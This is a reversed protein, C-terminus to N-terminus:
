SEKFSTNLMYAMLDGAWDIGALLPADEPNAIVRYVLYIEAEKVGDGSIFFNYDEIDSKNASSRLHWIKSLLIGKRFGKISVRFGNKEFKNLDTQEFGLERLYNIWYGLDEM